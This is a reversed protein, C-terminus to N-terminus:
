IGFLRQVMTLLAPAFQSFNEMAPIKNLAPHAILWAKFSELSSVRAKRAADEEEQLHGVLADLEERSLPIEDEDPRTM